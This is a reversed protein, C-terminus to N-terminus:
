WRSTTRRRSANGEARGAVADFYSRIAAVVRDQQVETLEPYLPLSLCERAWEETVPLSGERYGLSAYAPQLHLPIPYHM